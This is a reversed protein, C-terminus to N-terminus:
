AVKEWCSKVRLKRAAPLCCCSVFALLGDRADAEALSLCSCCLWVAWTGKGGVAVCVGTETCACSKWPVVAHTHPAARYNVTQPRKGEHLLQEPLVLCAHCHQWSPFVAGLVSFGTAVQTCLLNSVPQHAASALPHSASATPPRPVSCLCIGLCPSLPLSRRVVRLVLDTWNWWDASEELLHGISCKWSYSHWAQWSNRPFVSLFFPKRGTPIQLFDPSSWPQLWNSLHHHQQMLENPFLPHLPGPPVAAKEVGEGGRKVDSPFSPSPLQSKTKASRRLESRHKDNSATELLLCTPFGATSCSVLSGAGCVFQWSWCM